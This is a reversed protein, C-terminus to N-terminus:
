QLQEQHLPTREPLWCRRYAGDPDYMAAQRQPNFRRDSRPDTGAGALYLWNGQNSAVDFDILQHEFWSAGLRWDLALDHILYSAVNQRLRNSLYGTATLERMGADVWDCGTNGQCWAAFAAPDHRAKASSHSLQDQIGRRSFCRSGFRWMLLQFYERWMLEFWLWYSGENAGNRSEYANRQAEIDRVSLSGVALWPSLKSSYDTGLLGNRTAKYDAVCPSNFYSTLHAIGAAESGRWRPETYPFASRSDSALHEVAVITNLGLLTAAQERAEAYLGAPLEAVPPLKEPAALPLISPWEAAEIRKRFSTFPVPFPELSFPLKNPDFFGGGHIEQVCVGRAQLKTIAEQEEWGPHAHVFIPADALARSLDGLAQVPDAIVIMLKNGRAKLSEDLAMLAQCLHVRRHPGIRPFGSPGQDLWDIPLCYVALLSEATAAQRLPAHDHVRLDHRFWVIARTPPSQLGHIPPNNLSM